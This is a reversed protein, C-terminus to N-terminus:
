RKSENLEKRSIIAAKIYPISLKIIRLLNTSTKSTGYKRTKCYYGVEKIEVNKKILDALLYIFYDGYFAREFISLDLYKKQIIIFGSTLDKINFRSFKELIFNFIFSLIVAFISDESNLLNKAIKNLKNDEFSKKGKYGGGDVFRSGIVAFSDNKLFNDILFECSQIDMSGDADLWMTNKYKSVKIGDMISLPLSKPKQRQIFNININKKLLNDVIKKTNDTSGDDVIIIEYDNIEKKDFLKQLEPILFNINEAENLTPLIISIENM